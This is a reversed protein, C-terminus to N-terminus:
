LADASEKQDDSSSRFDNRLRKIHEAALQEDDDDDDDDHASPFYEASTHITLPEM